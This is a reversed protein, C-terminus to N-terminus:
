AACWEFSQEQLQVFLGPEQQGGQRARQAGEVGDEGGEEEEGQQQQKGRARGRWAAQAVAEPAAGPASAGEAVPGALATSLRRMAIPQQPARFSAPPSACSVDPSMDFLANSHCSNSWSNSWSVRQPRLGPGPSTSGPAKVLGAAGSGSAPAIAPLQDERGGARCDGSSSTGRSAGSGWSPSSGCSGAGAGAAAAARREQREQKALPQLQAWRRCRPGRVSRAPARQVRCM